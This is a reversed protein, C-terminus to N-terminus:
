NGSEKASDHRVRPREKAHERRGGKDDRNRKHLPSRSRHHHPDQKYQKEAHGGSASDLFLFTSNRIM